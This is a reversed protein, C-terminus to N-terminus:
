LCKGMAEIDYDNPDLYISKLWKKFNATAEDKMSQNKCEPVIIALYTRGPFNRVEVSYLEGNSLREYHPLYRQLQEVPTVAICKKDTYIVDTYHPCTIIVHPDETDAFTNTFVINVEFSYRLSDIDIIFTANKSGESSATEQYSGERIKAESLDLNSTEEVSSIRDYIIRTIYNQYVAPATTTESFNTITIPNEEAPDHHSTIAVISIIIIAVFALPALVAFIKAGLSANRFFNRIVEVLNM